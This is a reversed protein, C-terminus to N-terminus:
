KGGIGLDYTLREVDERNYQRPLNYKNCLDELLKDCEKIRANVNKLDRKLTANNTAYKLQEKLILKRSKLKRIERELARQTQLAKYNEKSYKGNSLEKEKLTKERHEAENLTIPTFYHRCNWRTTLFVGRERKEGNKLTYTYKITGDIIDEIFEINQSKIISECEKIKQSDKLVSKYDKVVYIKGQHEAHDEASDRLSNCIFFVFGNNKSENITIATAERQLFTRLDRELEIRQRENLARKDPKADYCEIIDNVLTEKDRKLRQEEPLNLLEDLTKNHKKEITERLDSFTKIEARQMAEATNNIEDELLEKFTKNENIVGTEEIKNLLLNKDTKKFFEKFSKDVIKNSVDTILNLKEFISEKKHLFLWALAMEYSYYNTDQWRKWDKYGLDSKRLLWQIRLENMQNDLDEWIRQIAYALMLWSTSVFM